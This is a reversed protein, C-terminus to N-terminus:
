LYSLMFVVSLFLVVEFIPLLAIAMAWKTTFLFPLIGCVLSILPFSLITYAVVHALVSNQAQPSDMSMGAVMLCPLASFLALIINFSSLLNIM